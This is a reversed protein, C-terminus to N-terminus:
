LTNGKLFLKMLGVTLVAVILNFMMLGYNGDLMWMFALISDCILGAIGLVVVVVNLM